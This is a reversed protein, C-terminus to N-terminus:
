VLSEMPPPNSDAIRDPFFPFNVAIVAICIRVQGINIVIGGIDDPVGDIQMDGRGYLCGKYSIGAIFIETGGFAGTM